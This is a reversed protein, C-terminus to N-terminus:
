WSVELCTASAGFAVFSWLMRRSPAIPLSFTVTLLSLANDIGTLRKLPKKPYLLLLLEQCQDLVARGYEAIRNALVDRVQRGRRQTLRKPTPLTEDLLPLGIAAPCHGAVDPVAV